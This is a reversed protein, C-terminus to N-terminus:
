GPFYCKHIGVQKLHTPDSACKNRDTLMSNNVCYAFLSALNGQTSREDSLWRLTGSHLGLHAGYASKYDRLTPFMNYHTVPSPFECVHFCMKEPM